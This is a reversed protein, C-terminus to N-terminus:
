EQRRRVKPLQLLAQALNDTSLGLLGAVTQVTSGSQVRSDAHNSLLMVQAYSTMAPRCM